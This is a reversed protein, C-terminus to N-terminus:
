GEHNSSCHTPSIGKSPLFSWRCSRAVGVDAGGECKMVLNLGATGVFSRLFAISVGGSVLRCVGM